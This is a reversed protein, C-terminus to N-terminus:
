SVVKDGERFENVDPGVAEVTGYSGWGTWHPYEIVLDWWSGKPVEHTYIALETGLNMVTFDNRILIQRSGPPTVEVEDFGVEFPQEIIVRKNLVTASGYWYSDLRHIQYGKPM